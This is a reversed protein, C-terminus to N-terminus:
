KKFISLTGDRMQKNNSQTLEPAPRKRGIEHEGHARRCINGYHCRGQQWRQCISTKVKGYVALGVTGIEKEGHAFQCLKGLLCQGVKWQTCLHLKKKMQLDPQANVEEMLKGANEALANTGASDEIKPM